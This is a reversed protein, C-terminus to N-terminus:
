LFVGPFRGKEKNSLWFDTLLCSLNQPCGGSPCTMSPEPSCQLPVPMHTWGRKRSHQRGDPSLRSGVPPRGTSLRLPYLGDLLCARCSAPWVPLGSGVRNAKPCYPIRNYTQATAPTRSDRRAPSSGAVKPETSWPAQNVYCWLGLATLFIGRNGCAAFHPLILLIPDAQCAWYVGLFSLHLIPNSGVTEDTGEHLPEATSGSCGASGNGALCCSM